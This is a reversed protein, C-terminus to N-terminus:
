PRRQSRFPPRRGSVATAAQYGRAASEAAAGAADLADRKEYVLVDDGCDVMREVEFGWEGFSELWRERSGRVGQHGRRGAPRSSRGRIDPPRVRSPM